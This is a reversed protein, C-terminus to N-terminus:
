AARRFRQVEGAWAVLDAVSKPDTWNVGMEDGFAFIRQIVSSAERDGLQKSSAALTVLRNRDEPDRVYREGLEKGAFIHRWDDKSLRVGDTSAAANVFHGSANLRVQKALDGCMANLRKQQSRTM